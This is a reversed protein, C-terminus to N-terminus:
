QQLRTAMTMATAAATAAAAVAVAPAPAAAKAAAAAAAAAADASGRLACRLHADSACCLAAVRLAGPRAHKERVARLLADEAGEHLAHMRRACAELQAAGYGSFRAATPPWAAGAAAAASTCMTARALFAAAAARLSPVYTHVLTYDLLSLELIYLCLRAQRADCGAAACYLAAYQYPTACSVRFELAVLVQAETRLVGARSFANDSICALASSSPAQEEEHKAALLLCACALRQLDCRATCLATLSRDLLEVCLFLTSAGLKYSGCVEVLWDVVTSRSNAGVNPQRHMYDAPRLQLEQVYLWAVYHQGYCQLFAVNLDHEDGVTVSFTCNQLAQQLM